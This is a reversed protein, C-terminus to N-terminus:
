GETGISCCLILCSPQGAKPSDKVDQVVIIPRGAREAGSLGVITPEPLVIGGNLNGDCILAPKSPFVSILLINPDSVGIAKGTVRPPLPNSIPAARMMKSM